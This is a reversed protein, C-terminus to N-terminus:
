LDLTVLVSRIWTAFESESLSGDAVRLVIDVVQPEPAEIQHGNLILFMNATLFGIRKNGDVFPHNKILGFGYSAAFVAFDSDSEYRWRHQPRALASDLLGEDRLGLQGGHTRIQDAHAAEVAARPVWIPEEASSTM